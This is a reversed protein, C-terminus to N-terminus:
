EVAEGNVILVECEWARVGGRDAVSRGLRIELSVYTAIGTRTTSVTPKRCCTFRVTDELVAM